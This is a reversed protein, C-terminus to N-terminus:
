ETSIRLDVKDSILSAFFDMVTPPLLATKSDTTFSEFANKFTKSSLKFLAFLNLREQEKEEQQLFSLAFLLVLESSM